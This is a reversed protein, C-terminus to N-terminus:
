SDQFDSLCSFKLFFHEFFSQVFDLFGGKSLFFFYSNELIGVQHSVEIRGDFILMLIGPIDYTFSGSDDSSFDQTQM